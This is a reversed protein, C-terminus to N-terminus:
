DREHARRDRLAVYLVSVHAAFRGGTVGAALALLPWYSPQAAVAMIGLSVPLFFSYVEGLYPNTYSMWSYAEGGLVRWRLVFWFLYVLAAAALGPLHPVTLLFWVSLAFLEIPFVARRILDQALKKDRTSIFTRVGSICDRRYDLAQHMLMWRIGVFTYVFTLILPEARVDEFLVLTFLAPITRQAVAAVILGFAGREKFRPGVSYVVAVAYSLVGLFLLAIGGHVSLLVAAGGAAMVVLLVFALEVSLSEMANRKGARLDSWRDSYDNILFGFSFGFVAFLLLAGLKVYADGVSPHRELIWLFSLTLIVPLKSPGWDIWRVIRAWNV